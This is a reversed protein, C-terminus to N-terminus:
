KNNRERMSKSVKLIEHPLIVHKGGGTLGYKNYIYVFLLVSSTLHIGFLYYMNCYM